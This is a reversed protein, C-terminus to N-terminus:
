DVRLPLWAKDAPSEPGQGAAFAVEKPLLFYFIGANYYAMCEVPKFGQHVLENESLMEDSDAVPYDDVPEFGPAGRAEGMTGLTVDSGSPTWKRQTDKPMGLAKDIKGAVKKGFKKLKKAMTGVMSEIAIKDGKELLYKQGDLIIETEETVTLTKMVNEQQPMPAVSKIKEIMGYFIRDSNEHGFEEIYPDPSADYSRREADVAM